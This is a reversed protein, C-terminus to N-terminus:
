SKKGRTDGREYLYQDLETTAIHILDMFVQPNGNRSQVFERVSLNAVIKDRDNTPRSIPTESADADEPPAAAARDSSVGMEAMKSMMPALLASIQSADAKNSTASKEILSLTDIMKDVRRINTNNEFGSM